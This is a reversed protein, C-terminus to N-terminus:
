RFADKLKAFTQELTEPLVKTDAVVPMFNTDGAWRPVIHLHLHDAIGAGAAEGMNVGLNFAQPRLATELAALARQTLTMWESLETPELDRLDPVHRYPIILLHGTNYPYANMLIFATDGRHLLLNEADREEIPKECFVCGSSPEGKGVYAMRWPAWLRETM